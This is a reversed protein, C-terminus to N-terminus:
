YRLAHVTEAVKQQMHKQEKPGLIFHQKQELQQQQQHKAAFHAELGYKRVVAKCGAPCEM